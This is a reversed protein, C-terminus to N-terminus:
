IQSGTPDECRLHGAGGPWARIPTHDERGMFGRGVTWATLYLSDLMVSGGM